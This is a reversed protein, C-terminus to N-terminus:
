EGDVSAAPWGAVDTVDQGAQADFGNNESQVAQASVTVNFERKMYDTGMRSDFAVQTFLPETSAGAPVEEKYYWYGDDGLLWNETDFDLTVYDTDLPQENAGKATKEVSVRVYCPNDGNNVVYVVKSAEATPMVPMGNPYVENFDKEEGGVITKDALAIRVNGMTLVNHATGEASFYAVTGYALLSLAIAVVSLIAIKRKM